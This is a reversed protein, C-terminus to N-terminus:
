EHLQAEMKELKDLKEFKNMNVSQEKEFEKRNQLKYMWFDNRDKSFEALQV